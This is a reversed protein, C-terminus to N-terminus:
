GSCGTKMLLEWGWGAVPGGSCHPLTWLTPLGAWLPPPWPAGQGVLRETVWCPPRWGGRRDHAQCHPPSAILSLKWIFQPAAEWVELGCQSHNAMSTPLSPRGGTSPARPPSSGQSGGHTLCVLSVNHPGGWTHVYSYVCVCHAVRDRGWVRGEGGEEGKEGRGEGRAWAQFVPHKLWAQSTQPRARRAGGSSLSCACGM